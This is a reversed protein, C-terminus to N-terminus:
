ELVVFGRTLRQGQDDVVTIRHPGPEPQLAMRHIEVTEGLFEEDLHWYLTSRVRRHAVEFVVKGKEGSLETPVYIEAAQHPYIWEMPTWGDTGQDLCDSRFPPLSRYNPHGQRYFREWVPPLVLLTDQQMELPSVCDSNVQFTGTPDLFVRQHYPCPETRLGAKPVWASDPHPCLAAARMGSERCFVIQRLDDYPPSFWRREGQLLDYLDFLIPAAVLGGVLGDRGEGDANGVWVAIVYDPTVGIAWADRYGFSTGTKWAIRDASEFNEWYAEVSPRTVEVMAEFTHWIAGASLQNDQRLQDFDEYDLSGQSKAQRYNLPRFAEPEYRSNYDSYNKLSRGMGAYAGGLDWLTAEAGGLIMSLGYHSPPRTLTTLGIAQLQDQFKPVGHAQLMRVAPINLSRALARSAYIAGRYKRDYNSPNYGKGFYSPVDAVLTNPLIEGDHLMAAYLFPKLISGTSRPAQVIDVRHGHAPDSGDTNGLYALVDGTEVEVILAAGNHIGRQSLRQHHRELVESARAQLERDLTSRLRAEAPGKEAQFRDLLHPAIQPLPLPAGPLDELLALEYSLSDLHGEEVLSALLRNRKARLADRNRGPHILAPANPLVALTAMEAWSLQEPGRGYYKWAAADLGVVNGGFPAYSAYYGLIEDKSYRVEARTALIMEIFKEWVTRGRGQRSLRIVQMTLTSGGSVVEGRSVNQWIARGFALPDVGPHYRFRKDEFTTICAEFKDPVSELEPFRWQGDDAIRAGLLQGNRDELVTSVPADFLPRPLCFVYAVVAVLLLGWRIPRRRLSQLFKNWQNKAWAKM